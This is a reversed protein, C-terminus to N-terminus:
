DRYVSAWRGLTSRDPQLVFLYFSYSYRLRHAAALDIESRVLKQLEDCDIRRSQYLHIRDEPRVVLQPFRALEGFEAHYITPRIFVAGSDDILVADASYESAIVDHLDNAADPTYLDDIVLPRSEYHSPHCMPDLRTWGWRFEIMGHLFWVFLVLVCCVALALWSFSPRKM